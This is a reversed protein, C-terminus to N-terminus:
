EQYSMSPAFFYKKESITFISTKLAFMKLALLKKLALKTKTQPPPKRQLEANHKNSLQKYRNHVM